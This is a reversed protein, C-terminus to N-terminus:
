AAHEELLSALREHARHVIPPGHGFLVRQFSLDLLSRLSHLMRRHNGCYKPPLFAFGYPDFNILADGIVLTGADRPDYVAFEGPAAGPIPLLLLGARQGAERAGSAAINGVPEAIIPASYHKGFSESARQHNANTVFISTVPGLAEFEQRAQDSLEIPDIVVLGPPTLIATSFLEVRANYDYAHWLFLHPPIQELDAATPIM